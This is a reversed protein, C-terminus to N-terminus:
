AAPPPAVGNMGPPPPMMNDNGPPPPAGPPPPPGGPGMASPPPAPPMAGKDARMKMADAQELWTRFMELRKEPVGDRKALLYQQQVLPIAEKLDMFPEPGIYDKGNRMDGCLDMVLRYSADALSQAEELDPFPLLRKAERAGMWGANALSQVEAIRAAPEQSLANTPYLQLVYEEEELFHEKFVVKAMDRQGIAKVGFSPQRDGIERALDMMQRAIELYFQQYLHLSVQFRETQIDLYVRQAEGSDLGAPKLGQAQLQSIGTIEYAKQYLRDLHQYVDPSVTMGVALQPPLGTYEIISGIDNDLKQKNISGKQVLWHGAALLHHSRQIKRLLVNLELQIGELEEALGPAYWGILSPQRALKVYPIYPKDYREEFLTANSIALVHLGDTAEDSSKLHFAETVIVQDATSDYGWEDVGNDERKAQAIETASEPFIAELVVRDIYKRRYFNRPQGYVAEEDDVLIEWPFVREVAICERGDKVDIYPHVIGDGYVASDLVVSPALDYLKTEYIQGDIFKELGKAKEQLDWNGGSTLFTVKPRDKTVKATYADCCSKVVNFALKSNNGALAKRAYARPGLGLIPLNGYLRAHRLHLDRRYSQQQWIRSVVDGLRQYRKDKFKSLWWRADTRYGFDEGATSVHSPGATNM